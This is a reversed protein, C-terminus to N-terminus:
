MLPLNKFICHFQLLQIKIQWAFFLELPFLLSLLYWLLVNLLFYLFLLGHVQDGPSSPQKFTCPFPSHVLAQLFSLDPTPRPSSPSRVSLAVPLQIGFCHTGSSIAASGRNRNSHAHRHGTSIVCTNNKSRLPAPCRDVGAKVACLTREVLARDRSCNLVTFQTAVM